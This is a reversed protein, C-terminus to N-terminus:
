VGQGTELLAVKEDFHEQLAVLVESVQAKIELTEQTLRRIEFDKSALIADFEKSLRVQKDTEAQLNAELQRIQENQRAIEQELSSHQPDSEFQHAEAGELTPPEEAPLHEGLRDLQAKRSAIEHELSSLSQTSKILLKRIREEFQNNDDTLDVQPAQLDDIASKDSQPTESAQIVPTAEVVTLIQEEPRLSGGFMALRSAIEQELSSVQQTSKILNDNLTQDFQENQESPKTQTQSIEM